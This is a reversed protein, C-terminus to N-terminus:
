GAAWQAVQASAHSALVFCGLVLGVIALPAVTRRLKLIALPLGGPFAFTRKQSGHQVTKLDEGAELAFLMQFRASRNTNSEGHDVCFFHPAGRAGRVM